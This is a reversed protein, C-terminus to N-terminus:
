GELRVGFASEISKIGKDKKYYETMDTSAHSALKSVAKIDYAIRKVPCKYHTGETLNEIASHRICHPTFHIKKGELISLIQSMYRCWSNASGVTRKRKGFNAWLSPNDDEGRQELWLRVAEQTREFYVLAEKKGGKKSVPNTCNRDKELFGDKTVQYLEMRRATSDYALALWAAIQYQKIRLLEYYLKTIQDDTLFIIQKVREIKIGKVKRCMNNDYEIDEDDELRECWSRITSIYHNHSATALGRERLYLGYNRFDKKRLELISRNDLQDLVYILFRKTNGEYTEQTSKSRGEQKLTLMFEKLFRKNDPNVREWKEPTVIRM